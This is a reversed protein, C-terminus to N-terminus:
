VSTLRMVCEGLTMRLVSTVRRGSHLDRRLKVRIVLIRLASSRPARPLNCTARPCAINEAYRNSNEYRSRSGSPRRSAKLSIDRHRGCLDVTSVTTPRAYASVRQVRTRTGNAEGRRVEGRRSQRTQDRSVEGPRVVESPASRRCTYM